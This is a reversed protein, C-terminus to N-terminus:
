TSIVQLPTIPFEKVCTQSVFFCVNSSSYPKYSCSSRDNDHTYKRSTNTYNYKSESDVKFRDDGNKRDNSPHSKHFSLRNASVSLGSGVESNSQRAERFIKYSNEAISRAKLKGTLTKWNLKKDLLWQQRVLDNRM